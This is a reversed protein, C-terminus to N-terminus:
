RPSRSRHGATPTQQILGAEFSQALSVRALQLDVLKVFPKSNLVCSLLLLEDTDDDDVFVAPGKDGFISNRPLSRFSLGNTRRPWTLGPRFFYGLSAPRLDPRHVTGTYGPYTMANDDWAILLHLDAYYPSFAGGKAHPVWGRTRGVREAPIEWWGRIWRGDNTTGNTRRAVRGQSELPHLTSFLSRISSTTWYAFPSGPIQDFANTDAAFVDTPSSGDAFSTVADHLAEAKDDAQLMRFFITETM